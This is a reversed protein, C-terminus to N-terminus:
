PLTIKRIASASRDSLYLTSPPVFVVNAPHSFTGVATATSDTSGRPSDNTVTRQVGAITKVVNTELDMTRLVNNHADVIFMRHKASDLALGYPFRFRAQAGPGDKWDCEPPQPPRPNSDDCVREPDSQAAGAVTTVARTALDMKRIDPTDSEGIYLNGKGDLLLQNPKNFIAAAGVGDAHGRKHAVGAITTVAKTELDMARLTQNASDAVYLTNTAADIALGGAWFATQTADGFAATTGIGDATGAEGGAITAVDHTTVDITRIAFNGTDTFYIKKGSPDLVMSRPLNLHAETRQGDEVSDHHGAFGPKGAVTTVRKTNV